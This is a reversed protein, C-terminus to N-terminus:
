IINFLTILRLCWKLAGDLWCWKSFGDKFGESLTLCMHYKLLVKFPSANTFNLESKDMQAAQARKM